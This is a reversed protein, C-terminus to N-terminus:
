WKYGCSPCEKETPINEDFEKEPYADISQIDIELDNLLLEDYEPLDIKLEALLDQLEDTFEGEIHKNNLSINLAKEEKDNLDVYYVPVHTLGLSEAAKCRMHGGIIVNNRKNVVVAQTFGFKKISNKLGNLADDSIRRPNYPSPNLRSLEAIETQTIRM